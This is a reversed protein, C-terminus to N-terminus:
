VLFSYINHRNYLSYTRALLVASSTLEFAGLTFRTGLKIIEEGESESYLSNKDVNFM